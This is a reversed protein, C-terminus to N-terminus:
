KAIKKKEREADELLFKFAYPHNNQIYNETLAAMEAASLNGQYISLEKMTEFMYIIKKALVSDFSSAFSRHYVGPAYLFCGLIFTTFFSATYYKWDRCRLFFLSAISFVLFFGSCVLFLAGKVKYPLLLFKKYHHVKERMEDRLMYSASKRIDSTEKLKNLFFTYSYGRVNKLMAHSGYSANLAAYLDCVCSIYGLLCLSYLAGLLPSKKEKINKYLLWIFLAPLGIVISLLGLFSIVRGVILM